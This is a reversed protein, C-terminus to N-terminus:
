KRPLAGATAKGMDVAAQRSGPSSGFFFGNAQAANSMVWQVVGGVLVSISSLAVPDIKALNDGGALRYCGYLIAGVLLYSLANVMYGLRMIGVTNANHARADAVDAIYSKEVDAAIRKEELGAAIMAKKVETDAAVLAVRQEPSLGAQMAAAVASETPEVGLAAAVANLGAGALAGAPGGVTTLIGGLIPAVSKVAARWDFEM